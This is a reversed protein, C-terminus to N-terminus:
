HFSPYNNKARETLLIRNSNVESYYMKLIYSYMASLDERQGLWLDTRTNMSRNVLKDAVIWNTERIFIIKEPQHFAFFHKVLLVLSRQRQLFVPCLHNIHDEHVIPKM